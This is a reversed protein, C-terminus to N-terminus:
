ASSPMRSLLGDRPSPSTYLLCSESFFELHTNMLRLNGSGTSIIMETTQRSMFRVKADAPSPLLHHMVQLPSRNSLILNGFQRRGGDKGGQRDHSAGYFLEYNPFLTQLESVQDSGNATDPDNRSVEQLCLIDPLGGKKIVDAIRQMDILGDVGKAYQINWSVISFM